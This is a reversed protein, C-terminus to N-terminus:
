VGAPARGQLPLLHVLCESAPGADAGAHSLPDKHAAQTHVCTGREADISPTHQSGAKRVVWWSVFLADGAASAVAVHVQSVPTDAARARPAWRTAALCLAALVAARGWSCRGCPLRVCWVGRTKVGVRMMGDSQASCHTCMHMDGGGTTTLDPTPRARPRSRTSPALQRPSPAHSRSPPPPAGHGLRTIARCLRRNIWVRFCGV